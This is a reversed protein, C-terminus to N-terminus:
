KSEGSYEAGFQERLVTRLVKGATSRPLADVFEIRRPRKHRAVKGECFATIDDATLGGRARPVVAVAPLEGWREDAVGFVACEAIGPHTDLVREIEAPYVNVGGSIIMDKVRDVLTIMGDEDAFALDGTWGWQDGGRFFDATEPDNNVYGQMVSVGRACIQGIEGPAAPRGPETFIGVEMLPSPRGISLPKRKRIDAYATILPGTESQGFNQIFDVQPLAAAARAILAPPAPAAGYMLKRLAGLRGADFSPDDILMSIQAPVLFAATAGNREVGAIFEPVDWHGQLVTTGGAMITPQFWIFGGAAHYLPAAVMSIENEDLHFEDIAIRGWHSRGRHSLLVAKPLGTTGGTFTISAASDPDIEVAPHDPAGGAMFTEYEIGDAHEGGIVILSELKPLELMLHHVTEALPAEVVAIRADVLAMTHRIEEALYRPSLHASVAGTRAIGFYAVPYEPRNGCLMAVTDGPGVGAAILANAFRNADQDLARYSIKADGWIIAPKEPFRAASQALVEGTLM